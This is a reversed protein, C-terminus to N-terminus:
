KNIRTQIVSYCLTSVFSIDFSVSHVFSNVGPGINLFVGPVLVIQLFIVLFVIVNLIHIGLVMKRKDLCHKRIDKLKLSNLLAFGLMVGISAYVLGSAGTTNVNPLLIIWLLNSLIASVFINLLLFYERRIREKQHLFINLVAFLVLFALFAVMNVILHQSEVHIFISTIVGWPTQSSALLADSLSPFIDTSAYAIVSPILVLLYVLFAAKFDHIINWDLKSKEKSIALIRVM